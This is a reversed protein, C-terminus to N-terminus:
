SIAEKIEKWSQGNFLADTIYQARNVQSLTYHRPRGPKRTDPIAKILGHDSWWRIQSKTCGAIARLEETTFICDDIHKDGLHPHFRETTYDGGVLVTLDSDRKM